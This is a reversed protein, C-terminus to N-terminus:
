KLEILGALFPARRDSRGLPALSCLAQHHDIALTNRQSAMGVRGRRSLDLEKFFDECLDLDRLSSRSSVPGTGFSHDSVLRIVAIRSSFTQPFSPNSKQNRMSLVIPVYISLIVPEPMAVPSSIYDLASEVPDSVIAPKNDSVLIM